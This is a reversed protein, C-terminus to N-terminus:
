KDYLLKKLDDVVSKLGEIHGEMFEDVSVSKSEKEMDKIGQEYKLVLEELQNCIWTDNNVRKYEIEEDESKWREGDLWAKAEVLNGVNIYITSMANNISTKCVEIEYGPTTTKPLETAAQMGDYAISFKWKNSLERVNKIEMGNQLIDKLIEFMNKM